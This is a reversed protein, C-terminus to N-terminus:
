KFIASKAKLKQFDYPLTCLNEATHIFMQAHKKLIEADEKSRCLPIIKGILSISKLRLDLGFSSQRRLQDFAVSCIDEFHYRNAQVWLEGSDDCYHEPPSHREIVEVLGEGLQDLCIAATTPDNIGPSVARLAIEILNSISFIIDQEHTRSNGYSFCTLLNELQEDNLEHSTRALPQHKWAGEGPRAFIQIRIKEEQAFAFIDSYGISQVYGKGKREIKYPLVLEPPNEPRYPEEECYVTRATKKLRDGVDSIIKSSQVSAAVHHVYYVFYFVGILASFIMAYLSLHFVRNEQIMLLNLLAYVHNFIFVALASQTINDKMFKDIIRPGYQQSTLSLVVITISFLVGALALYSTFIAASITQALDYSINPLPLQGVFKSVADIRDLCSSITFVLFVAVISLAPIFWIQRQMRYFIRLLQFKTAKFPLM